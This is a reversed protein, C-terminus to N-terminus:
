STGAPAGIWVHPPGCMAEASSNRIDQLAFSEQSRFSQRGLIVKKIQKM